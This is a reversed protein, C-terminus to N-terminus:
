AYLEGNKMVDGLSFLSKDCGELGIVPREGKTMTSM